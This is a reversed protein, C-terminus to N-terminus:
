LIIFILFFTIFCPHITTFWICNSSSSINNPL